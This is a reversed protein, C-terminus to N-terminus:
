FLSKVNLTVSTSHILSQTGNTASGTVTVTQAGVPTGGTLPGPSGCGTIAAGFILSALVMLFVSWGNRLSRFRRPILLLLFGALMPVGIKTSLASATTVRGPATTRVTLTSSESSGSLTGPSFTCTTNAPLQACSLTVPLNFGTGPAITVTYSAAEGTYVTQASPSAKISFDAPSIVEIVVNSTSSDFEKVGGYVATIIHSGVALSSTSYSAAGSNLTATALLGAGDYFSVSGGPTAAPSSVKATFTVAAGFPAPNPSASLTTTTPAATVIVAVPLSVSPADTPSGGYSATISYNGAAPTLTLVAVGVNLVATGLSSTGNRFNISGTPTTGVTPTVTASLTLTQGYYLASSSATLATNTAITNVVVAIAPSSASPKDTASGGYSATMSYSGVAPTLALTAVGSGNVSAAGLSVAGNKFIVTGTPMAGSAATVTATLTLTQGANLSTASATLTTVTAITPHTVPAGVRRIRQNFTDGIYLNDASDFVLGSPSQIQALNAPGGDGGYDPAGDGAYTTIIGTVLDVRRIRNNGTDEFYLSGTSDFVIDGGPASIDASTAPGGDGSFGNTGDGAITTIIGTTADVRRVRYNGGDMIYLNGGPDLSVGYPAWVTASTAPIGDGNYGFGGTGAVTSINGTVADVKQILNDGLNSIYVDGASDVAVGTPWYLEARVAPGGNGSSGPTGTGAITTIIGTSAEIRRVRNNLDDPIYINGATDLAVGQLSSFSADLAPGGDGGYGIGENGAVTTIVGTSADVKRVRSNVIDAFYLDGAADMAEGAPWWLEANLAPGNDGSFGETGTGAYTYINPSNPATGTVTIKVAPSESAQWSLYVAYSATISYTGAVPTLALKAVGNPLLVVTGLSTTGNLFTVFGNPTSGTAATVTATLTVTQGATLTTASTTLTTTTAISAVGTVTVAIAPSSASPADTPSGGYSATISYSGVAPTLALSAVGRGNLSATGLSVAGNNFTVSGTPTVGSAPTVTATLVLTQGFTLTNSSVTLATSTPISVTYTASAVASTAYGSATAIAELTESASVVIPSSYVSSSANPSTGDTTYYIVAGPTTDSISVIQATTYNGAPVSFTPTAAAPLNSSSAGYRWLDNPFGHIGASDYGWGGFLWFSGDHDTWFSASTRAGPINASAPVGLTGYVGPQDAESSGGAWAWENTSPNFEWLSNLDVINGASDPGQGGFLWFNGNSTWASSLSRGGPSNAGAFVGLTGYVAPDGCRIVGAATVCNDAGSSGGMWAWERTQPNFEWLDNWSINTPDVAYPPFVVSIGGFLWLNGSGDIWGVSFQRSGPTNGAAPVGLSGYVGAPPSCQMSGTSTSCSMANSGSMWTWEGTSPSFEWLDNLAGLLGDFTYQSAGFLWFNGSRDSWGVDAIRGGPTNGTAPVGLTGYVGPASNVSYDSPLTSSGAIWAWESNSPNFKWLDNLYGPTNASDAVFGGFLWLNGSADTWGLARVRGGPVNGAAPVGLIGYVGPEVGIGNNKPLTSSGSIWTWERTSVNYEWLDNLSGENGASDLGEGGFLWLNGNSDTWTTADTRSGPLNGTSPTFITGYKGAYGGSTTNPVTSSGGMWTWEGAGGISANITYAASAAQSPSYGTATAIAELTESVSVIIPNNYVNSHATPTTGDTTYYIVAGPTTDSITVNQTATYTGAQVSFAPTAAVPTAITYDATAIASNSYGSATAIAEIIETSSVAIPVSYVNSSATPVTGDTTYYIIAGPTTDGITVSEAGPYTGAPPDFTPRAAPPLSATPQFSWLDNLSGFAYIADYGSGGFIWGNGHSDTWAAAGVRTGPSNIAAPVGRTGYVAPSDEASKGGWWTWEQSSPNFEWLDDGNTGTDQAPSTVGGFIWLHSIADIWHVSDYHGGPNNGASAVGLVGYVNPQGGGDSTITNSGGVWTWQDTSPNLEWLDNLASWGGKSDYGLGGFLWLNESSDTWAAAGIRSGPANGDAPTGLTGYVGPRGCNEINACASDITSSGGMWAWEKTSPDFEWLDNLEGSNGDADVGYGGFLWFHGTRDTWCVAQSRGGPINGSAPTKLTGYVGPAGADGPPIQKSGGMWTWQKASTNFEWLDNLADLRGNADYGYGGFFWLNGSSDTWSTGDSRSGPVNGAAAVYLTGYVGPYGCYQSLACVSGLVSGGGMWAWENSAPNFKWLDNLLGLNGSADFGDGGFLWLNGRNDTWTVVGFRGGPSDAVAATGLTGYTGARGCNGYQNCNSGITSSGSMWAWRKPGSAPPGSQVQESLTASNASHLADGSYTATLAHAGTVSFTASYGEAGATLPIAGALSTSGDAFTISGTPAAVSSGQSNAVAANLVVAQGATAPNPTATFTITIPNGIVTQSVSSESGSFVTDGSYIATVDDSGIGITSTTYSARAASNGIAVLPISTHIGNQDAFVVSGSPTGNGSTSSNVTATFRIAGGATAPNSSSKLATTTPILTVNAQAGVNLLETVTNASFSSHDGNPFYSSNAALLDPYGDGNLDAIVLGSQYQGGTYAAEAGFTRGPKSLLVGLTDGSPASLFGLSGYTQLILDSLGDKNLDVAFIGAYERNFAGALVPASFTGDGNGYYVYAVTLIQSTWPAIQPVIEVLAAVDPNGDGDFDGTAVLATSGSLPSAGLYKPIPLTVGTADFTGDGHGKLIQVRATLGNAADLNGDHNFDASVPSSPNIGSGNDPIKTSVKTFTGDGNSLASYIYNSDTTLIDDRGDKNIDLVAMKDFVPFVESSNPVLQPSEFTGDGNGFLIYSNYDSAGSSGIALIDQRGTGRFDGHVIQASGPSGGGSFDTVGNPLATYPKFTGDGNGLSLEISQDGTAAIDPIGDGNFDAVTLHGLLNAVEYAPTAKFSGDASGYSIYIGKPGGAIVDVHGDQDIDALQSIEEGNSAPYGVAYHVPDGFSLGPKGLLVELGGASDAVIDPIGDGNLDLIAVPEPLDSISYSSASIPTTNFSGDANGHLIAFDNASMLTACVADLHGDGDMDHYVCSFYDGGYLVPSKFTGDGNGLVITPGSSFLLDLKGDGNIDAVTISTEAYAPVGAYSSQGLVTKVTFKGTGDGLLVFVWGDRADGVLLDPIGNGTLDAPTFIWGIFPNYCGECSQMPASYIPTQFTGDGNGLFAAMSVDFTDVSDLCVLDMKGDHNVDVPRCGGVYAPLILTPGTTFGGSSQGFFVGASSPTTSNAETEYLLDPVGDGNVDATFVSIPDQNTPIHYPNQFTQADLHRPMFVLVALSLFVSFRKM